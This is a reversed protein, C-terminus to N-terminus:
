TPHPASLSDLLYVLTHPVCGLPAGVVTSVLVLIGSRQGVVILLMMWLMMLMWLLLPDARHMLLLASLRCIATIAVSAVVTVDVTKVLAPLSLATDLAVVAAVMRLAASLVVSTAV